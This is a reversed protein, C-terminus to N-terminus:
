ELDIARELERKLEMSFKGLEYEDPGPSEPSEASGSCEEEEEEPDPPPEVIPAEAKKEKKSRLKPGEASRKLGDKKEKKQKRARKAEKEEKSKKSKKHEKLRKAEKGPKSAERKVEQKAHAAEAQPPGVEAKETLAPAPADQPAPPSPAPPGKLAPIRGLVSVPLRPRWSRWTKDSRHLSGIEPCADAARHSKQSWFYPLHVMPWGDEHMHACYWKSCTKPQRDLHEPWDEPEDFGEPMCLLRFDEPLSEPLLRGNAQCRKTLTAAKEALLLDARKKQESEELGALVDWKVLQQEVRLWLPCLFSRGRWKRWAPYFNSRTASALLLGVGLPTFYNHSLHFGHVGPKPSNELLVALAQASADGLRNKYLELVEM